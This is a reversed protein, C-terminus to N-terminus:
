YYIAFRLESHLEGQEVWYYSLAAHGEIELLSPWRLEAGNDIEQPGIWATAAADSGRFIQMVKRGQDALVAM